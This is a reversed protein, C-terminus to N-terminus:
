LKVRIILPVPLNQLGLSRPESGLQTAALEKARESLRGTKLIPSVTTCGAPRHTHTHTSRATDTVPHTSAGKAKPSRRPRPEETDPGPLPTPAWAALSQAKTGESGEALAPSARPHRAPPQAQSLSLLHRASGAHGLVPHLPLNGEPSLGGGM